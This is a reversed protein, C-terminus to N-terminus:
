QSGRAPDQSPIYVDNANFPVIQGAKNSMAAQQVSPSNQAALAVAILAVFSIIVSKM